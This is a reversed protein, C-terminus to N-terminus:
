VWDQCLILCQVSVIDDSVFQRHLSLDNILLILLTLDIEDILPNTILLLLLVVRKIIVV